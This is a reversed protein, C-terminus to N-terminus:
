QNLIPSKAGVSAPQCFFKLYLPDCGVLWDEEWFVVSFSRECPIFIPSVKRGNQWLALTQCVSPCVSLSDSLIRMALGRRSGNLATFIAFQIQATTSIVLTARLIPHPCLPMPRRECVRRRSWKVSAADNQFHCVSLLKPLPALSFFNVAMTSFTFFRYGLPLKNAISKSSRGISRRWNPRHSVIWTHSVNRLDQLFM